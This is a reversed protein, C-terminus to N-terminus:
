HIAKLILLSLLLLLAMVGLVSLLATFVLSSFFSATLSAAYLGFFSITFSATCAQQLLFRNREDNQEIEAQKFKETNRLLHISRIVTVLGAAALGIGTGTYFGRMYDTFQAKGYILTLLFAAAGLLCAALGAVMRTMVVKRFDKGSLMKLLM